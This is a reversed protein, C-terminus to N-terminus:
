NGKEGAEALLVRARDIAADVDEFFEIHLSPRMKSVTDGLMRAPLPANVVFVNVLGRLLEEAKALFARTDAPFRKMETLDMMLVYRAEGHESVQELGEAQAALVQEVTIDDSFRSLYIGREIRESTVTM